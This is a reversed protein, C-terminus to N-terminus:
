EFLGEVQKQMNAITYDKIQLRWAAIDAEEEATLILPELSEYWVLWAAKQDPSAPWDQEDIGLSPREKRDNQDTAATDKVPQIIVECGEPWDPTAAEVKGNHVTSTISTPKL